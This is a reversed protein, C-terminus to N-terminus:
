FANKYSNSKFLTLGIIKIDFWLTRNELYALDFKTRNIKQELTETPGRWGNVQAWGSIGPKLYHRLMYNDVNSKLENNLFVRHPRPGVVSMEGMLVNIFQPIEDINTKRIFAGIKTIRPDNIETSKEGGNVKDNSKMSRFKYMVFEKGHRGIRIPKYFVPGKTDLKILIGLIIFLPSSVILVGLSFVVDFVRKIFLSYNNYLSYQRHNILPIRDFMEVQFADNNQSLFSYYPMHKVYIGHYDCIDILKKLQYNLELPIVFIVEDLDPDTTIEKDLLRCKEEFDNKSLELTIEKAVKYGANLNNELYKKLLTVNEDNGIIITKRLNVGNKRLVRVSFIILQSVVIKTLFFVNIFVLLKFYDFAGNLLSICTKIVLLLLYMKGLSKFINVFNGLLFIRNLSVDRSLYNWGFVFLAVSAYLHYVSNLHIGVLFYYSIFLLISDLIDLTFLLKINPINM